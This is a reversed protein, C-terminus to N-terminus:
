SLIGNPPIIAFVEDTRAWAAIFRDRLLEIKSPEFRRLPLAM